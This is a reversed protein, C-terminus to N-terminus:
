QGSGGASQAAQDNVDTGTKKLGEIEQGLMSQMSKIRCCKNTLAAMVKNYNEQSSGQFKLYLHNHAGLIKNERDLLDTAATQLSDVLSTIVEANLVVDLTNSRAENNNDAM